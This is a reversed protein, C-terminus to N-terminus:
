YVIQFINCFSEIKKQLKCFDISGPTGFTPKAAGFAGTACRQDSRHQEFQDSNIITNDYWIDTSTESWVSRRWRWHWVAARWWWWWCWFHFGNLNNTGKSKKQKQHKKGKKIKKEFFCFDFNVQLFHTTKNSPKKAHSALSRSAFVIYLYPETAVNSETSANVHTRCRQLSPLAELAGAVLVVADVASWRVDNRRGVRGAAGICCRRRGVAEFDHVDHEREAEVHAHPRGVRQLALVHSLQLRPKRGTL